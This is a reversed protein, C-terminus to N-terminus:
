ARKRRVVVVGLAVAVAASAGLVSVWLGLPSDCALGTPAASASSSPTIAAYSAGRLGLVAQRTAVIPDGSGDHDFSVMGTATGDCGDQLSVLYDQAASLAGDAQGHDSSAFALAALATTNANGFGGDDNQNDLLWQVSREATEPAVVLLAHTALATTDPDAICAGEDPSFRIGGDDCIQDQLWGIAATSPEVEVRTLGLLALAQTFSSSWDEDSGDAFRGVDDGEDIELALLGAVYDDSGVTRPDRGDAALALILKALAGASPAGFALGSYNDAEALLWDTAATRETAGVGAAALAIIVDATGGYDIFEHEVGEADTWAGELREGDVLQQALWGAAAEAPDASPAAYAPTSLLALALLAVLVRRLVSGGTNHTSMTTTAM